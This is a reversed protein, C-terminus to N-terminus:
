MRYVPFYHDSKGWPDNLHGSEVGEPGTSVRGVGIVGSLSGDARRVRGGM